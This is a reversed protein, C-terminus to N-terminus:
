DELELGLEEAIQETLEDLQDEYDPTGEEPFEDPRVLTRLQRQDPKKKPIM